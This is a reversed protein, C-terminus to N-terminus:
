IAYVYGAVPDRAVGMERARECLDAVSVAELCGELQETIEGLVDKLVAQSSAGPDLTGAGLSLPGEIARVVDALSIDAAERALQYGGRPGRKSRVIGAKKLDQFAQELFRTPILQRECIGKIQASRVPEHYALDFVAQLAYRSKSSLKM